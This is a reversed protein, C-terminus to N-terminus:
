PLREGVTPYSSFDWNPIVDVVEVSIQRGPLLKAVRTARMVGDIILLENSRGRTVLIPPMGDTSIGFRAIQRQLKQPDAGFSRGSPLRLKRPDAEFQEIM